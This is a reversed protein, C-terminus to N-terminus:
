PGRRRDYPAAEGAEADSRRRIEGPSWFVIGVSGGPLLVAQMSPTNELAQVGLDLAAPAEAYAYHASAPRPGHDIWLTFVAKTVDPKPSDPSEFVRHWNGTVPGSDLRLDGDELM